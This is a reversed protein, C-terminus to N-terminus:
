PRRATEVAYERHREPHIEVMTLRADPHGSRAYVAGTDIYYVNDRRVTGRVPTHGCYVRDVGGSVPMCLRFDSLRQRSWLACSVADANGRRLREMFVDWALFPPVDAHVVGVLGTRTEIELALPMRAFARLFHAQRQPDIDLWWHGGMNRSVWFALQEPDPSDIACQEHNGRCARFWPRDLWELARPSEPGRDILDGVSFLRDRTEDFAVEDLLLGLYTFMGHIDGVVFDRGLRNREFREVARADDEAAAPPSGDPEKMPLARQPSPARVPGPTARSARGPLFGPEPATGGAPGGEGFSGEGGRPRNAKGM